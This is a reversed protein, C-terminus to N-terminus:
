SGFAGNEIPTASGGDRTPLVARNVSHTNPPMGTSDVREDSKMAPRRTPSTENGYGPSGRVRSGIAVHFLRPLSFTRPAGVRGDTGAGANGNVIGFPM